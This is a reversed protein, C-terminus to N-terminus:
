FARPHGNVWWTHAQLEAALPAWESALPHEAALILRHERAISACLAALVITAPGAALAISPLLDIRVALLSAAVLAANRLAVVAAAWQADSNFLRTSPSVGFCRCRASNGAVLLASYVCTAAYVFVASAIGAWTLPNGMGIGAVGFGLALASEAALAVSAAREARTGLVPALYRAFATRGRAKTGFAVAYTVGIALSLATTGAM